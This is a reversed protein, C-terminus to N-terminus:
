IILLKDFKNGTPELSEKSPRELRTKDAKSEPADLFLLNWFDSLRSIEVPSFQWLDSNDTISDCIM